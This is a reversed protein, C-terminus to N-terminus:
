SEKRETITVTGDANDIARNVLRALGAISGLAESPIPYDLCGSEDLFEHVAEVVPGYCEALIAAIDTQLQKEIRAWRLYRSGTKHDIYILDDTAQTPILCALSAIKEAVDRHNM